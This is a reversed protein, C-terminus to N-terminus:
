FREWYYPEREDGDAPEDKGRLAAPEPTHPVTAANNETWTKLASLVAREMEDRFATNGADLLFDLNLEERNGINRVTLLLREFMRGQVPTCDIEFTWPKGTRDVHRITM